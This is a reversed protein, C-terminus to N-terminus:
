NWVNDPEALRTSPVGVPRAASYAMPIPAPSYPWSRLGSTGPKAEDITKNTAEPADHNGRLCWCGCGGCGPAGAWSRPGCMGSLRVRLGVIM